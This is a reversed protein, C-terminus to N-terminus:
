VYNSLTYTCFCFHALALIPWASFPTRLRPALSERGARRADKPCPQVNRGRAQHMRRQSLTEPSSPCRLRPGRPEKEARNIARHYNVSLTNECHIRGTGYVSCSYHEGWAHGDCVISSSPGRNM